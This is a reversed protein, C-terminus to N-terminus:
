NELSETFRRIITEMHQESERHIALSRLQKWEMNKLVAEQNYEEEYLALIINANEAKLAEEDTYKEPYQGLSEVALIVYICADNKLCRIRQLVIERELRDMRFFIVREGFSSELLIIGHDIENEIIDVTSNPDIFFRELDSSCIKEQKPERWLFSFLEYCRLRFLNYSDICKKNLDVVTSNQYVVGENQMTSICIENANKIRFIDYLLKDIKKESSKPNGDKIVADLVHKAFIEKVEKSKLNKLERSLTSRPIKLWESLAKQSKISEKGEERTKSHALGLLDLIAEKYDEQKDIHVTDTDEEWYEGVRLATEKVYDLMKKGM